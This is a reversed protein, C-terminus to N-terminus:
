LTCQYLLTEETPLTKQNLKISEVKEPSLGVEKIFLEPGDLDISLGAVKYHMPVIIKPQLQNAIKAAQKGDITYTGGVPIMLVDIDGIEELQADSLQEQGFDGMHLFVIDEMRIVYMTNFGREAGESADHFSQIGIVQIGAKEYEGPGRVVFIDPGANEINNHDYHEHSILVIDDVLRPPKLGIDKSFPDILVKSEKGELRFCAQGYWTITM